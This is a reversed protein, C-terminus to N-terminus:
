QIKVEMEVPKLINKLYQGTYSSDSQIVHEPTGEFIIFGGREGGEPGLDIIWDACKIIDLNHEVIIVTNGQDVLKNISDLLKRIDSSHLGTTPEDLIYLNNTKNKLKSLEKSLKIRQAEGGSLTTASQGLQVYGLGLEYMLSLKHHILRDHKFFEKGEEVSLKLIDAISKGQYKIELVEKKYRGGKCIPCITRVDPIFTLQTEMEGLGNCESCRGNTSNFSFFSSNFGKKKAEPIKAYLDRIKNYIGVYTAPNSRSNAGIPTQDINRIDSINELGILDKYKGPITRSDRIKSYIAKYLVDNILSSKGSGSVGTVCIFIGLPFQIDM